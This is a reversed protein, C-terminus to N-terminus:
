PRSTVERELAAWVEAAGACFGLIFFDDAAEFADAGLVNEWFAEARSPM